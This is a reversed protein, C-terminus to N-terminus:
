AVESVAVISMQTFAVIRGHYFDLLWSNSWHKRSTEAACASVGVVKEAMM